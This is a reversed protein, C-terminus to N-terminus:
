IKSNLIKSNLLINWSIPKTHDNNNTTTTYNANSNNNHIDTNNNTSDCLEDMTHVRKIKFINIDLV